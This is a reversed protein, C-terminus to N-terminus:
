SSPTLIKHRRLWLLFIFGIVFFLILAIISNRMSGTINDLVGFLVLGFMMAMKESVDYFSFYGANNQTKPILKSYTSRSLTQIGGMVMGIFFAVIFFQTATYTLYGGVCIGIWIAVALILARFNGLKRSLWAFLFAGVIGVYELVLITAILEEIGLNIEKEGFSAAVYMVTQLGMSYFFFALLFVRLVKEEGLRHWIKALEHYGSFLFFGESKRRNVGKPLSSFPIQAFGFWWLGTLLFSLRPLLTGDTVGLAEENFMIVLNLILLTSAGIYGYAFGRASVKDQRDETAIAPLFSNYFVLSGSYGITALVLGGIGVWLTEPGTFFFLVACGFVGLYCFFRMFAKQNGSHDSISSLLPSFLAILGFSVGLTIAYLATNEIAMGLFQVQDSGGVRTVQNFYAPFIASTIVLMYVSNAWDYMAWSHITKRDNKQLISGPVAEKSKGDQREGKQNELEGSLTKREIGMTVEGTTNLNIEAMVKM